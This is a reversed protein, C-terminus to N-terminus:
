GSVTCCAATQLFAQSDQLIEQRFSDMSSKTACYYGMGFRYSDSSLEFFYAPAEKWDASPRKFTLWFRSRYKSKDQSFRTDRHIRSLTKGIAPRIEFANDILCMAEGLESVLLRFPLLLHEDYIPRHEDFWIKNNNQQLQQLFTLGAQSFGNFRNSM